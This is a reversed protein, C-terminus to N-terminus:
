RARFSGGHNLPPDYPVAFHYVVLPKGDKDVVKSDGFWEKFAVTETQDDDLKFLPDSLDEEQSRSDLASRRRANEEVAATARNRLADAHKFAILYSAEVATLAAPEVNFIERIENGHREELLKILNRSPELTATRSAVNNASSSSRM